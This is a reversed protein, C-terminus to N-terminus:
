FAMEIRCLQPDETRRSQFGVKRALDLMPQNQTLVDGYLVKVGQDRAIAIVQEVLKPGLGKGQWPDGVMIAFEASSRDAAM